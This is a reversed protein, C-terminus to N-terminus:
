TSYGVRGMHHLHHMLLVWRGVFSSFIDANEKSTSKLLKKGGRKNNHTNKTSRWGGQIRRKVSATVANEAKPSGGGKWTTSTHTSRSRSTIAKTTCWYCCCVTFKARNCQGFNRRLGGASSDGILHPHTSQSVRHTEGVRQVVRPVHDCNLM